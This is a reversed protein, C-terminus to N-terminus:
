RRASGAIECTRLLRGQSCARADEGAEAARGAEEVDERAHRQDIGIRDGERV